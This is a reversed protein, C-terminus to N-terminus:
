NHDTTIKSLEYVKFIRKILWKHLNENPLDSSISLISVFYMLAMKTDFCIKGYLLDNIQFIFDFLYIM